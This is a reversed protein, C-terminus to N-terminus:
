RKNSGLKRWREATEWNPPAVTVETQHFVRASVVRAESSGDEVIDQWIWEEMPLLQGGGQMITGPDPAVIELLVFKRQM